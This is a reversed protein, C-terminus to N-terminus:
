LPFYQLTPNWEPGILVSNKLDNERGVLFRTVKCLFFLNLQFVDLQFTRGIKLYKERGCGGKKGEM